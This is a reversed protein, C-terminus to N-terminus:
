YIHYKGTDSAYKRDMYSAYSELFNDLSDQAEQSLKYVKGTKHITFIAEMVAYMSQLQHHQLEQHAESLERPRTVTPKASIFLFRDLFGDNSIFNNLDQLLPQPQVSLCISMSTANFGRTGSSLTTSDGKGNWM